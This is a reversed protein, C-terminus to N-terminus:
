LPRALPISGASSSHTLWLAVIQQSEKSGVGAAPKVTQTEDGSTASVGTGLTFLIAAAIALHKKM